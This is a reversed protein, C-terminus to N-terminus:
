LLEKTRQTNRLMQTKPHPRESLVVGEFVSAFVAGELGVLKASFVEYGTVCGDRVPKNVKLMPSFLTRCNFPPVNKIGSESEVPRMKPPIWAFMESM